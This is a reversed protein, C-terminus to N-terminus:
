IYFSLSNVFLSLIPYSIIGLNKFSESYSPAFNLESYSKIIPYYLSDSTENIIRLTIDEDFFYYSFFWKLSVLFTTILLISLFLETKNYINESQM